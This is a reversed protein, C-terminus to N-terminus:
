WEEDPELRKETEHRCWDDLMEDTMSCGPLFAQSVGVVFQDTLETLVGETAKTSARPATKQVKYHIAVDIPYQVIIKM